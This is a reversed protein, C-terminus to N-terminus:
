CSAQSSGDRQKGNYGNTYVYHKTKPMAIGSAVAISKGLGSPYTLTADAKMHIVYGEGVRMTDINTSATILGYVQGANNQSDNDAVSHGCAGDSDAYEDAASVSDHELGCDTIGADASVTVPMGAVRM